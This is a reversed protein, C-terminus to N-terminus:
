QDSGGWCHAAQSVAAGSEERGLPSDSDAFFTAVVIGFLLSGAAKSLYYWLRFPM